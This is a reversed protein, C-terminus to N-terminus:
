LLCTFKLKRALVVRAPVPRVPPVLVTLSALISRLLLRSARITRDRVEAM